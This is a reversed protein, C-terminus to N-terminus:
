VFLMHKQLFVETEKLYDKISEAKRFGHGEGEYVKYLHPVGNRRLAQVIVESQNPPVVVDESGQFVAVPAKIRDAGTIPSWQRYLTGAEPLPGVLSDTYHLEFKHTDTALAFLDSVGYLDIGAAFVQTDAELANLVTYGGASGGMIAIRKPDAQSQDVLAQAGAIADETDIEGWRAKLAEQYSRGYGTSGRYNVELWGYGRSTFYSATPHNRIYQQSTPGGHINVIVPPLGEGFIAPHTPAYYIGHVRTGDAAQWSIPKQVAYYGPDISEMSSRRVVSFAGKDYRVIRDPVAPGSAIMALSERESGSVSLQHLYSYPSTDIQRHQKENIDVYWLTTFANELRLYYIRQSDFTWGYEHNGQVWAPKALHFGDGVVLVERTKQQLDYLVLSDWEGDQIIYSLMRGDPSFQPQWVPVNADGAITEISFIVATNGGTRELRGLRLQTGDWPMNPHDWEIWALSEGSPHWVPQMYFDAGHVLKQPWMNGATDVIALADQQGDSHVFVVWQQDPSIAPAAAQGFCPLIPKPLNYGTTRTYLKGDKAAFVLRDGVVDFEGGGYGVGGRANEAGCLDRMGDGALESVVVGLGNRNEIWVLTNDKGWRIDNFRLASGLMEASLESVWMGYPKKVKSM